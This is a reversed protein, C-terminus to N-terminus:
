IKTAELLRTQVENQRRDSFFRVHGRFLKKKRARPGQRLDRVATPLTALERRKRKTVLNARIQGDCKFNARQLFAGILGSSKSHSTRSAVVM